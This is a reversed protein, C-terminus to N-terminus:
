LSPPSESGGAVKWGGSSDYGQFLGALAAGLAAAIKARSFHAEFLARAARNRAPMGARDRALAAVARALAGPDGPPILILGGSAEAGEPYARSTRSLVPRGCALAQFVKNAIVREAKPTTGFVGLVLDSQWISKPRERYPNWDEFVVDPRGAAIKECVARAPGGGLFHWRVPPGVYQCAAQAITAAGHLPIFSGYFLVEFPADARNALGDAAPGFLPEEAGVPVVRIRDPPVGFTEAFFDAHSRTDALLLDAAGFQRAERRRIQEAQASGPAYKCREFVQKDYASILPDFMLPVKRRRCWRRAAAADRQRFSPLWVLDPRPVGRCAAELDGLSSLRPRFDSVTWGLDQFAQRLIRNRSYDPDHRGWALTHRKEMRAM